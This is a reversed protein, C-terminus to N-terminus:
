IITVTQLPFDISPAYLSIRIIKLHIAVDCGGSAVSRFTNAGRLSPLPATIM